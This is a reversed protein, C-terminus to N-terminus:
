PVHRLGGSWGAPEYSRPALKATSSADDEGTIASGQGSGGASARVGGDARDDARIWRKQRRSFM